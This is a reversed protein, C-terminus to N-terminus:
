FTLCIALSACSNRGVPPRFKTRGLFSHFSWYGHLRSFSFSDWVVQQQHHYINVPATLIYSSIPKLISLVLGNRLELFNDKYHFEIQDHESNPSRNHYTMNRKSKNLAKLVIVSCCVASSGPTTCRVRDRRNSVEYCLIHPESSLIM